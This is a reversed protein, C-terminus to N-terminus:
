SWSISSNDYPSKSCFMISDWSYSEKLQKSLQRWGDLIYYESYIKWINRKSLSFYDNIFLLLLQHSKRFCVFSLYFLFSFIVLSTGYKDDSLINREIDDLQEINKLPFGFDYDKVLQAM